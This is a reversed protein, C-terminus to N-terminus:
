LDPERSEVFSHHLLIANFRQLTVSLRQFLFLGEQDDGTASSLRRGLDLFLKM